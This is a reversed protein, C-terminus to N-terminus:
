KELHHGAIIEKFKFRVFYLVKKSKIPYDIQLDRWMKRAEMVLENENNNALGKAAWMKHFSNNNLELFVKIESSLTDEILIEGREFYVILNRLDKYAEVEKLSGQDKWEPGQGVSTFQLISEKSIVM